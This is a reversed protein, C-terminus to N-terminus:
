NTSLVELFTTLFFIRVIRKMKSPAFSLGLLFDLLLVSATVSYFWHLNPLEKTLPGLRSTSLSNPTVLLLFTFASPITKV